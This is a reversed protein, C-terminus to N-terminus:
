KASTWFLQVRGNPKIEALANVLAFGNGRSTDAYFGSDPAPAIGNLEFGGVRPIRRAALSVVTRAGHPTLRVVAQDDMAVVAGTSTTFLGGPGRPYFGEMGIPLTIRGSPTVMLLTKTNNGNIFLDGHSDFALGFPGDPSAKTAPGGIGTIGQLATRSGVVISLTGNRNLRLVENAAADFYLDGNPGIAVDNPYGLATHVAETGNAVWYDNGIAPVADGAITTITGAPSIARIRGNGSDAFYLTGDPAVTMGGPQDLRARLAPGGDGSFGARGTGAVVHFTGGGSWELIENRADDAVYLRGGPGVALSSPREPVVLAGLPQGALSSREAGHAAVSGGTSRVVLYAVSALVACALLAVMARHRRRRRELLRAERFLAELARQIRRQSPPKLQVSM